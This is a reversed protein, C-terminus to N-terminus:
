RDAWMTTTFANHLIVIALFTILPFWVIVVIREILNMRRFDIAANLGLVWAFTVVVASAITYAPGRPRSIPFGFAAGFALLISVWLEYKAPVIPRLWPAM